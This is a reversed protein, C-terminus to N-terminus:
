VAPPGEVNSRSGARAFLVTAVLLALLTVGFFLLNGNVGLENDLWLGPGIIAAGGGLWGILLAAGFRRPMAAAACTPVVLAAITAWVSPWVYSQNGTATHWFSTDESVLALAGVAGLLIVLWAPWDRPRPLILRVERTRALVVAALCAALILVLLGALELWWGAGSPAFHRALLLLLLGWLAGASTGLLVGPGVLWRTAPRFLCAAAAVAFVSVIVVYLSYALKASSASSGGSSSLASIVLPLGALLLVAGAIALQGAMVMMRSSRERLVAKDKV